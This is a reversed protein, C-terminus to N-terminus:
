ATHFRNSHIGALASLLPVICIAVALGKAVLVFGRRTNM